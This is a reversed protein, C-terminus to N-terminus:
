GTIEDNLGDVGSDGSHLAVLLVHGLQKVDPVAAM